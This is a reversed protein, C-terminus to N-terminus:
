EIRYFLNEYNAFVFHEPQMSRLNIIVMKLFHFILNLKIFMQSDFTRSFKLKFYMRTICIDTLTYHRIAYYQHFIREEIIFYIKNIKM